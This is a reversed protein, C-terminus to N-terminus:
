SASELPGIWNIRVYGGTNGHLLGQDILSDAVSYENENEGVPYYGTPYKIPWSVGYPFNQNAPISGHLWNVAAQNVSMHGSPGTASNETDLTFASGNLVCEEITRQAAAVGSNWDDKRYGSPVSINLISLSENCMITTATENSAKAYLRGKDAVKIAFTKASDLRLTGVICPSSGGTGIIVQSGNSGVYSGGGGGIAVIQWIGKQLTVTGATTKDVGYYFEHLTVDPIDPNESWEDMLHIYKNGFMLHGDEGIHFGELTTFNAHSHIKSLLDGTIGNLVSLNTHQHLGIPCPRLVGNADLYVPVIDSVSPDIEEAM